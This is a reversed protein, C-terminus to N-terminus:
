IQKLHHYHRLHGVHIQTKQNRIILNNSIIDKLSYKSSGNAKLISMERFPNKNQININKIEYQRPMITKQKEEDSLKLWEKFEETYEVNQVLKGIDDALVITSLSLVIIFITIIVYFIKKLKKM